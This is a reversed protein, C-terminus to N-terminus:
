QFLSVGRAEVQCGFQDITRCPKFRSRREQPKRRLRKRVRHGKMLSYHAPSGNEREQEFVILRANFEIIGVEAIMSKARTLVYGDTRCRDSCYRGHKGKPSKIEYVTGCFPNACRQSHGSFRTLATSARKRAGTRNKQRAPTARATLPEGDFSRAEQRSGCEM